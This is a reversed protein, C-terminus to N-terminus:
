EEHPLSDLECSITGDPTFSFYTSADVAAHVSIEDNGLDGIILTNSEIDGSATVWYFGGLRWITETQTFVCPGGPLWSADGTAVVSAGFEYPMEPVYGFGGDATPAVEICQGNIETDGDPRFNAFIQVARLAAAFGEPTHESAHIYYVQWDEDPHAQAWSVAYDLPLDLLNEGNGDAFVVTVEFDTTEDHGGQPNNTASENM